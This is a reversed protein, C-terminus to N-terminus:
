EEEKGWTKYHYLHWDIITNILDQLEIDNRVNDEIKNIDEDTLSNLYDLVGNKNNKVSDYELENEIYTRVDIM